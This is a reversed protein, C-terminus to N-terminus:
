SNAVFFACSSFSNLRLSNISCICRHNFSSRWFDLILIRLPHNQRQKKKFSPQCRLKLLYGLTMMKTPIAFHNVCRITIGANTPEFGMVWGMRARIGSKFHRCFAQRCYRRDFKIWGAYFRTM